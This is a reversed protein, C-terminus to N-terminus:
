FNVKSGCENCVANKVEPEIRDDNGSWEVTFKSLTSSPIWSSGWGSGKELFKISETTECQPCLFRFTTQDIIAMNAGEKVM